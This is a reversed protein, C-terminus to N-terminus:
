SLVENLRELRMAAPAPSERRDSPLDPHSLLNTLRISLHRLVVFLHHATLQPVGMKHFSCFWWTSANSEGHTALMRWSQQPPGGHHSVSFKSVMEHRTYGGRCSSSVQKRPQKDFDQKGARASDSSNVTCICFCRTITPQATQITSSAARSSECATHTHPGQMLRQETECAM